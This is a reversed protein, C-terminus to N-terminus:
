RRELYARQAYKENALHHARALLDAQLSLNQWTKSGATVMAAEWDARRLALGPPQVSGQILLGLKNRRQAAGAIKRGNWLVDFKEWGVFCQGPVTKRCCDALETASFDPGRLNFKAEKGDFTGHGILVPRDLPDAAALGHSGRVTGADLPVVDFAINRVYKRPEPLTIASGDHTLAPFDQAIAARVQEALEDVGALGSGSVAQYSSVVLRRLGAERHLPQLVPMAAMTTCNPNAIIGKTAKSIDILEGALALM